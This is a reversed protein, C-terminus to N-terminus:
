YCSLVLKMGEVCLCYVTYAFIHISAATVNPIYYLNEKDELVEIYCTYLCSDWIDMLAPSSSSLCPLSQPYCFSPSLLKWKEDM